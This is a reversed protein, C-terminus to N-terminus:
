RNLEVIEGTQVLKIRFQDEGTVKKVRRVSKSLVPVTKNDLNTPKVAIVPFVFSVTLLLILIFLFKKM